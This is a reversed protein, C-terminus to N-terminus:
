VAADHAGTLASMIRAWVGARRWPVFRNNCTTYPRGASRAMASWTALGLMPKIAAWEEDTLEYRM